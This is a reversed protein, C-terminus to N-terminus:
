KYTGCFTRIFEKKMEERIWSASNTSIKSHNCKQRCDCYVEYRPVGTRIERSCSAKVVWLLVWSEPLWVIVFGWILFCLEWIEGVM